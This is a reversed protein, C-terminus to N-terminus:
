EDERESIAYWDIKRSIYMVVALIIFLAISGILLAYDQLQLLTFIFGYMLLLLLTLMATLKKHKFIAQVYIAILSTVMITAIIYALNFSTHESIAVLLTFFICLALGVLLYQIPHIRKRNLIEVFFFTLFTLAIFMIAYKVSRMSKQYQDVPLLLNVGFGYSQTNAQVAAEERYPPYLYDDEPPAINQLPFVYQDGKWAQPFNRNLHLVEWKATFGEETINHEDPLFAGVFSPNTWASNLVVNTTKGLPLFGLSGSGHLEIQFNFDYAQTSTDAPVDVKVGSSLVNGPGAGPDFTLDAEQWQLVINQEIGRMDPIGFAIFADEWILQAADLNTMELDPTSFRGSIALQASYVVAEYIGRQRIEPAIKTDINLVDPLFHAYETTEVLQNNNNRYSTLFPITLIPGALTQANAWSSSVEQIAQQRYNQRERILNEIMSTPILLLLILIAISAIRLTISNRTWSSFREYFSKTKGSM